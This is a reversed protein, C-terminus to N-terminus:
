LFVPSIQHDQRLNMLKKKKKKTKKKKKQRKAAKVLAERKGRNEPLFSALGLNLVAQSKTKQNKSNQFEIKLLGGTTEGM